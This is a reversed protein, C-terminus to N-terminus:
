IDFVGQAKCGCFPLVGPLDGKLRARATSWKYRKGDRAKHEPRYHVKGSHRWIWDDIGVQRQREEDLAAALKVTQDSAIRLSRARSLGVAESIEKAVQRLPTRLQYNRFFIDAIRQRAEDSVNRILSMNRDIVAEITERVGWPGLTTGLNVTTANFVGERFQERHYEEAAVAWTGLAVRLSAVVRTLIGDAGGLADSGERIDDLLAIPDAGDLFARAIQRQADGYSYSRRLKDRAVALAYAPLIRAQVERSWARVVLLYIRALDKEIGQPFQSEPITGIKHGVGQERALARLSPQWLM